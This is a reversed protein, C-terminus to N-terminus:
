RQYIPLLRLPIALTLTAMATPYFRGRKDDGGPDNTKHPWSGDEKRQLALLMESNHKWVAVFTKDGVQHAAQTTYYLSYYLYNQDNKVPKDLLYQTAPAVEPRNAADLLYLNLLAVGTMAPSAADEKPQYAFGRQQAGPKYCRLIYAMARDAREKPVSFGANQCARLAIMCWGTVSLDSDQANPEYRWGGQQEKDKKIDQAALIVKLAKEIVSRVKKRQGMDTETGYAEALAITVICHGYMRSGDNGFYGDPPDQKLLFDMANRVTLGFRGFDPTDGSALYALLALGAMANKPGASDFSGDAKQQRRLFVLGNDIVAELNPPLPDKPPDAAFTLTPLLFLSLISCLPCFIVSQM